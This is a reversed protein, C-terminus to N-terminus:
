NYKEAAFIFTYNHCIVDSLSKKKLFLFILERSDYLFTHRHVHTTQHEANKKDYRRVDAKAKNRRVHRAFYLWNGRLTANPFSIAHVIDSQEITSSCGLLDFIKPSGAPLEYRRKEGYCVSLDQNVRPAGCVLRYAREREVILDCQDIVIDDNPRSIDGSKGYCVSMTKTQQPSWVGIIFLSM